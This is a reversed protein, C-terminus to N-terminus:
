VKQMGVEDSTPRHHKLVVALLGWASERMGVEHSTPEQHKLRCGAAGM